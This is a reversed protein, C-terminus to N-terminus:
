RRSTTGGAAIPGAGSQIAAVVATGNELTADILVKMHETTAGRTGIYGSRVLEIFAQAVLYHGDLAQYSIRLGGRTGFMAGGEILYELHEVSILIGTTSTTADRKVLKVFFPQPNLRYSDDPSLDKMYRKMRALEDRFQENIRVIWEREDRRTSRSSREVPEMMKYQVMVLSRRRQNLYILDVGFLEELPRKNATIVALQGGMPLTFIARGTVDSTALNWGPISRADHEIVADELVRVRALGSDEGPLEVMDAEGSGGFAKLALAIADQQLARANHYHTPKDLVAAIHKLARQNYPEAALAAVVAKGLTPPFTELPETSDIIRRIGSRLTGADVQVLLRILNQPGVVQIHDITVRSSFFGVAAISTVLGIFLREQPDDPEDDEDDVAILALGEQKALHAFAHPYVLSVRRGRDRGAEISAWEAADLRLLVVGRRLLLQLHREQIVADMGQDSVRIIQGGAGTHTHKRSEHKHIFSTSPTPSSHWFGGTSRTFPTRDM